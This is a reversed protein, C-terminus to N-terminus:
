NQPPVACKYVPAASTQAQKCLKAGGGCNAINLCHVSETGSNSIIRQTTFGRACRNNPESSIAVDGGNPIAVVSWTAYDGTNGPGVLDCNIVAHAASSFLGACLFVIASFFKTGRM